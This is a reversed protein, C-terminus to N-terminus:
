RWEGPHRPPAVRRAWAAGRRGVAVYGEDERRALMLHDRQWRSRWPRVFVSGARPHSQGIHNVLVGALDVVGDAVSFRSWRPTETRSRARGLHVDVWFGPVPAHDGVDHAQILAVGLSELRSDSFLQDLHHDRCGAPFDLVSSSWSGVAAFLSPVIDYLCGDPSSNPPTM